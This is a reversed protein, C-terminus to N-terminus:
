GPHTAFVITELQHFDLRPCYALLPTPPLAKNYEASRDVEVREELVLVLADSASRTLTLSRFSAFVKWEEGKVAMSFFEVQMM